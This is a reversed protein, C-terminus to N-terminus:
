SFNGASDMTLGAWPEAGDQGGTFSYMVKFTQALAAQSCVVMLVFVIVLALVGRATRSMTHFLSNQFQQKGHM